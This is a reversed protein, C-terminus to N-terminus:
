KNDINNTTREYVHWVLGDMQVTGIYLRNDMVSIPNGTGIVEITRTATKRPTEVEVWLTLTGNQDQATLIKAGAPLEVKQVDVIRLPYKFITRM